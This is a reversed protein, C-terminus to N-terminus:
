RLSSKRLRKTPVLTSTVRESLSSVVSSSCSARCSSDSRTRLSRKLSVFYCIQTIMFPFANDSYCGFISDKTGEFELPRLEGFFQWIILLVQLM